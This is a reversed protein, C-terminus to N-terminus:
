CQDKKRRFFKNIMEVTGPFPLYLDKLEALFDDLDNHIFMFYICAFPFSVLACLYLLVMCPVIVVGAAALLIVLMAVRVHEYIKQGM